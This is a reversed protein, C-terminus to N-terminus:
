FAKKKDNQKFKQRFFNYLHWFSIRYFAQELKTDFHGKPINILHRIIKHPYLIGKLIIFWIYLRLRQRKLYKYDKRWTPSFSLQSFDDYGKFEDFIETGPIPTVIFIAIEDVGAFTLKRIYKSTEKIDEQTEGPFGLIFCAQSFIGNKHMMKTMEYALDYKFPKKM